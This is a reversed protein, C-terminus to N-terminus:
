PIPCYYISKIAKRSSLTGIEILVKQGSLTSLTYVGHTGIAPNTEGTGVTTLSDPHWAVSIGNPNYLRMDRTILTGPTRDNLVIKGSRFTFLDANLEYDIALSVGVPVDIDVDNCNAQNALFIAAVLKIGRTTPNEDIIGSAVQRIFSGSADMFWPEVSVGAVQRFNTLNATSVELPSSDFNAAPDTVSATSNTYSQYDTLYNASDWGRFFQEKPYTTTAPFFGQPIARVSGTVLTPNTLFNISDAAAAKYIFDGTAELNFNISDIDESYIVSPSNAENNKFYSYNNTIKRDIIPWQYVGSPLETSVLPPNSTNPLNLFITFTDENNLLRKVDTGNKSTNSVKIHQVVSGNHWMWVIGKPPQTSALLFQEETFTETSFFIPKYELETYNPNIFRRCDPGIVNAYAVSGSFEGNYFESEDSHPKTALGELTQVIDVWSQTLFFQDQDEQYRDMVGGTGGSLTATEISGTLTVDESSAVVRRLRNRELIHQKIVVGSTLTVNSPTFDKIMKFLSNDFFKILRVFDVLNYSKTYKTFYDDRLKDLDPYKNTENGMQRPDGIYDGLNFYGIQNVIDDNIQNQPSFAVELYRSDEDRQNTLDEQQVSRFASLVSSTLTTDIDGVSLRGTNEQTLYKLQELLILNSAGPTEDIIIRDNVQSRIGSAIQNKAVKERNVKFNPNTITFGSGAAFSDIGAM